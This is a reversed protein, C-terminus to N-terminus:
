KWSGKGSVRNLEMIKLLVGVIKDRGKRRAIELATDGSSDKIRVDSGRKALLLVVEAPGINVAHHLPTRGFGDIQNVKAGHNLLFLCLDLSQVAKHLCTEGNANPKQLDAGHAALYIVIEVNGMACASLIATSNIAKLEANVHAGHTIMTQVMKSQNTYSAWWLPTALYRLGGESIYEGVEETEAGCESLFYEVFDVQGKVCAKFVVTQHSIQLSVVAKRRRIDLPSLVQMASQLDKMELCRLVSDLIAGLDDRDCAVKCTGDTSLDVGKSQGNNCDQRGRVCDRDEFVNKIERPNSADSLLWEWDEGERPNLGATKRREALERQVDRWENDTMMETSRPNKGGPRRGSKTEDWSSAVFTQSGKVRDNEWGECKLGRPTDSESRSRSKGERQHRVRHGSVDEDNAPIGSIEEGFDEVQYSGHPITSGNISKATRADAHNNHNGEEVREARTRREQETEIALRADEIAKVHKIHSLEREKLTLDKLKEAQVRMSYQELIHGMMEELQNLNYEVDEVDRQAEMTQIGVEKWAGHDDSEQEKLDGYRDNQEASKGDVEMWAERIDTEHRVHSVERERNALDRLNEADNRLQREREV